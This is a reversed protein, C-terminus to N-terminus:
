LHYPCGRVPSAGDLAVVPAQYLYNTHRVVREDFARHFQPTLAGSTPPVLWQWDGRVTRGERAEAACFREFAASVTHHDAIRVGDRDFSHLVARNLEVVARDRWLSRESATDWGFCRGVAPLADYRARDALDRSAIETVMYHGNFPACPFVLGGIVLAMDSLVPVPYWKLGLAGVAANEPHALTVLPALEPAAALADIPPLASGEIHLIWPLPEFAGRTTPRWGAALCRRTFAANAADGVPAGDADAFGAFQVLQQNELRVLDPGSAPRPAFVTVVNRIDGGNYAVAMHSRLAGVIQEPDRLDRADVVQLSRWLHRAVCRNSNYWALRAGFTLEEPTLAYTGTARVEREVQSLRASLAEPALAMAELLARAADVLEAPSPPAPQTVPEFIVNPALADCCRM